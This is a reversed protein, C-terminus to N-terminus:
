TSDDSKVVILRYHSSMAGFPSKTHGNIITAGQQAQHGILDNANLGHSCTAIVIELLLGDAAICFNVVLDSSYFCYVAYLCCM